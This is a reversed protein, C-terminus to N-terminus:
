VKENYQTYVKDTKLIYYQFDIDTLLDNPWGYM